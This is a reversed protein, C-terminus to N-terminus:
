KLLEYLAYAYIKANLLLNEISVRENPQHVTIEEGPHVAGFSVCNDLARAYTGGGVAHLVPKRGSVAQYARSLTRILPHEEPVHLPEKRTRIDVM